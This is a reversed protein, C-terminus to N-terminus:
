KMSRSCGRSISSRSSAALPSTAGKKICAISYCHFARLRGDIQKESPLEISVLLWPANASSCCPSSPPLTNEGYSHTPSTPSSPVAFLSTCLLLTYPSCPASHCPLGPSSLSPAKKGWPFVFHPPRGGRSLSAQFPTLPMMLYQIHMQFQSPPFNCGCIVLKRYKQLKRKTLREDGNRFFKRRWSENQWSVRQQRANGRAHTHPASCITCTHTRVPLHFLSRACPCPSTLNIM